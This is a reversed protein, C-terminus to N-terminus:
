RRPLDLPLNNDGPTITVPQPADVPLAPRGATQDGQPPLYTVRYKGAPAGPKREGRRDQAHGTSLTFSGDAGVDGTVLYDAAASDEARFQVLGGSAPKGGVKVVGKAPHLEPWKVPPESSCGLAAALALALM